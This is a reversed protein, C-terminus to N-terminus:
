TGSRMFAYIMMASIFLVAGIMTTVILLYWRRVTAPDMDPDFFDDGDNDILPPGSVPAAPPAAPAAPRPRLSRDYDARRVPDSLVRWSENVQHMATSDVASASPLRDPHFRRALARYAARIEAHTAQPSVGLREYHNM